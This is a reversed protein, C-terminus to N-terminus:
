CNHGAPCTAIYLVAGIYLAAVFLALLTSRVRMTSRRRPLIWGQITEADKSMTAPPPIYAGGIEIGADTRTREKQPSATANNM